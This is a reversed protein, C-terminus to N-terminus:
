SSVSPILDDENGVLVHGAEGIRNLTAGAREYCWDVLKPNIPPSKAARPLSAPHMPASTGDGRLREARLSELESYDLSVNRDPEAPWARGSDVEIVNCFRDLLLESDERRRAATVIYVTSVTDVTAWRDAVDAADHTHLFDESVPGGALIADEFSQWSFTRGNSVQQSWESVAQRLLDRATVVIDISADPAALSIDRVFARAQVASVEALYESTFLARRVGDAVGPRLVADESRLDNVVEVRSGRPDSSGRLTRGM